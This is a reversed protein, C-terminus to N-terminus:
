KDTRLFLWDRDRLKRKVLEDFERSFLCLQTNGRKHEENLWQVLVVNPITAVHRGWDSNQPISRLAKNSELIPEVDQMSEVVILKESRDLSVRTDM